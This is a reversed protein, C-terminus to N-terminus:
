AMALRSSYPTTTFTVGGDFSRRLYLDYRDRGVTNLKWNPSTAYLMMVFDGDLYGRHAKAVDLPMYWAADDLNTDLVVSVPETYCAPTITSTENAGPCEYWELLKAFLQQNEPDIDTLCQQGFETDTCTFGDNIGPCDASSDGSAECTYPTKGSLNLTPMMCLGYPYYPNSGDEFFKNECVLNEPRYPNDNTQDIVDAIVRVAQIDAPGGQNLIGEKFLPMALLGSTGTATKAISQSMMATRRAIMNNFLLYNYDGFDWMDTTDMVPFYTGTIWNVEPRNIQAGQDVLNDLLGIEPESDSSSADGMAFSLYFANKGIDAEICNDEMDVDPDGCPVATDELTGNWAVDNPFGFRGLGKDEESAVVVYADDAVGDGDTDRPQVNLRPRSAATNAVNPLDATGDRDTDAVCIPTMTDQPGLPIETTDACYDKLGYAEAVGYNCYTVEEGTVPVNCRANNTLRMPVAFPVYGLPKSELDACEQMPTPTGGCDVTDFEDWPLYSYWVDTQSNTTAGAWGTGPGEGEGPRLGVPDEQWTIACGGGVSCQTEIRTLDRRGSTLRENKFWVVETTGLNEPDERLVGRATWLCNFPMEGVQPFGETEYDISGQSGQVGFLDNLYLDATNDIELYTAIADVDRTSAPSGAQCYRSQWAILIKNGAVAHFVNNNDGPYEYTVPIPPEPEGVCGEPADEVHVIESTVGDVVAAVTCPAQAVPVNREREFEGDRDARVRFLLEGTVGNIIDVRDRSDAEGEVELRGFTSNVDEWSAEEIVPVGDDAADNDDDDEDEDSDAASSMAVNLSALMNDTNVANGAVADCTGYIECNWDLPIEECYDGPVPIPTTTTFSSLDTSQSIDTTKWTTGDDLSISAYVERKGHGQFGEAGEVGLVPGYVYVSVLPKATTLTGVLTDDANIYEIEVPEGNSAQAPVRFNMMRTFAHEGHSPCAYLDAEQQSMDKSLLAGDDAFLPASMASLAAIQVALTKLKM